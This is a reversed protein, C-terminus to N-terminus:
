FMSMCMTWWSPGHENRRQKNNITFYASRRVPRAARRVEKPEGWSAAGGMQSAAQNLCRTQKTPCVPTPSGSATRDGNDNDSDDDNDGNNDDNNDGGGGNNNNATSAGREQPV